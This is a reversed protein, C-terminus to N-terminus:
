SATLEYAAVREAAGTTETATYSGRSFVDFQNIRRSHFILRHIGAELVLRHAIQEVGGVETPAIVSGVDGADPGSRSGDVVHAHRIYRRGVARNARSGVISCGRGLNDELLALTVGLNKGIDGAVVKRLHGPKDRRTVRGIM